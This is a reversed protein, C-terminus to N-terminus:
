GPVGLRNVQAQGVEARVWREENAKQSIAPPQRETGQCPVPTTVVNFLSFCFFSGGGGGGGHPLAVHVESSHFLIERSACLEELGGVARGM